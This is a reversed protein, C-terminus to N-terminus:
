GPNDVVQAMEVFEITPEDGYLDTTRSSNSRLRKSDRPVLQDTDPPRSPGGLHDLAM